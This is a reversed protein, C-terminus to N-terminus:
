SGNFRFKSLLVQFSKTLFPDSPSYFLHTGLNSDSAGFGPLVPSFVQELALVLKEEIYQPTRIPYAKVKGAVQRLFDVHWHLKKKAFTDPYGLLCVM